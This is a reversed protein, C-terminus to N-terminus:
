SSRFVPAGSAFDVYDKWLARVSGNPYGPATGGFWGHYAITQSSAFSSAGSPVFFDPGSPGIAGVGPSGTALWATASTVKTCPGTPGACTAYGIGASATDWSGAGYFLFYHNSGNLWVGTMTPGEIIGNEWAATASLLRTPSSRNQFSTGATNLPQAWLATPNGYRNDDSKWHLYLSGAPSRFPSPDISGGRGTQCVLPGSSGDAYPGQPTSSTARSICQLGNSANTVTYYMVFGSGIQIVAPAWTNGTKAWRPLQPLADTGYGTTVAAPSWTVADSSQLEQVNTWRSRQSDWVQTSFAYYTGNVVVVSPDPFDGGYAPSVAASAVGSALLVIACPFAVAVLWRRLHMRRFYTGRNEKV